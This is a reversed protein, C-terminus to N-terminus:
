AHVGGFDFFPVNLEPVILQAHVLLVDLGLLLLQFMLLPDQVLLEGRLLLIPLPLQRFLLFLHCHIILM